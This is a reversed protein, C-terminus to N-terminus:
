WEAVLYWHCREKQFIKEQVGVTFTHPPGYLSGDHYISGTYRGPLLYDTLREGPGLYFAKKEPGRIVFNYRRYSSLNAVYGLYGASATKGSAVANTNAVVGTATMIGTMVPQSALKELAMQDREKDREIAAREREAALKDREMQGIDHADAWGRWERRDYQAGDRFYPGICGSLHVLAIIAILIKILSKM